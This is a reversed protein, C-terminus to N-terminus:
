HLRRRASSAFPRWSPTPLAEEAQTPLRFWVGDVAIPSQLVHIDEAPMFGQGLLGLRIGDSNTVVDLVIVAHGPSGGEVYFEGAEVPVGVPLTQADRALSTTGAYTFVLDLWRRYSRHDSTRAPGRARRVRNGDIHMREGAVWDSWRTEDGSTFRYAAESQRNHSWLYEAHLRIVSDACQMLDRDGVDMAVIGGSPRRLPIGRYSLVQVRDTRIPLSRLWAAFSKPGVAVRRYGHPPRYRKILPETPPQASMLPFWAHAAAGAPASFILCLALVMVRTCRKDVDTMM